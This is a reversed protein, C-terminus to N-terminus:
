ASPSMIVKMEEIFKDKAVESVFEEITMNVPEAKTKNLIKVDEEDSIIYMTFKKKATENKFDYTTKEDIYLWMGNNLKAYWGAIEYGYEDLYERIWETKAIVRLGRLQPPIYIHKNLVEGDIKYTVYGVIKTPAHPDRAPAVGGVGATLTQTQM